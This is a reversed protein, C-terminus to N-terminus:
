ASATRPTRAGITARARIIEKGTVRKGALIRAEFKQREEDSTVPSALETLVRWGVNNFIEPREGM